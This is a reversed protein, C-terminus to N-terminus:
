RRTIADDDHTHLLLQLLLLVQKPRLAVECKPESRAVANNCLSLFFQDDQYVEVRHIGGYPYYIHMNPSMIVRSLLLLLLLLLLPLFSVVPRNIKRRALATELKNILGVKADDFGGRWKAVQEAREDSHFSATAAQIYYCITM